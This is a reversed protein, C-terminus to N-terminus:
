GRRRNEPGRRRRDLRPHGQADGPGAGTLGDRRHRHGMRARVRDGGQLLANLDENTGVQEVEQLSALPNQPPVDAHQFLGLRKNVVVNSICQADRMPWGVEQLYSTLAAWFCHAPCPRDVSVLEWGHSCKEGHGPRMGRCKKKKMCGEAKPCVTCHKRPRRDAQPRSDFVVLDSKKSEIPAAM